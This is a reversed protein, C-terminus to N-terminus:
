VCATVNVTALATDRVEPPSLVIAEAISGDLPVGVAVVLPLRVTAEFSPLPNWIAAFVPAEVTVSVPVQVGAADALTFMMLMDAVVGVPPLPLAPVAADAKASLVVDVFRYEVAGWAVPDLM